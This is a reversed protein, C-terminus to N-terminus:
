PIEVIKQLFEKPTIADLGFMKAREFNDTNYTIIYDVSSSFALELVFDDDPDKLYPRLL